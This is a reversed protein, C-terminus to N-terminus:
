MQLKNEERKKKKKLATKFQNLKAANGPIVAALRYHCSVLWEWTTKSILSLKM